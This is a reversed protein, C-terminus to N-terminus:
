LHGILLVKIDIPDFAKGDATLTDSGLRTELATDGNLAATLESAEDEEAIASLPDAEVPLLVGEDVDVLEEMDTQAADADPAVLAMKAALPLSIDTLSSVTVSSTPALPGVSFAKAIRIEVGGVAEGRKHKDSISLAATLDSGFMQVACFSERYSCELKCM